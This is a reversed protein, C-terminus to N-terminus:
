KFINNKKNNTTQQLLLDFKKLKLPLCNQKQQMMM